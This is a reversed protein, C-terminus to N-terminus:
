TKKSLSKLGYVRDSLGESNVYGLPVYFFGCAMLLSYPMYSRTNHDPRMENRQTSPSIVLLSIAAALLAKIYQHRIEGM